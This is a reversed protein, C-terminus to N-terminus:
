GGTGRGNVTARNEEALLSARPTAQGAYKNDRKARYPVEV